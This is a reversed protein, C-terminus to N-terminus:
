IGAAAGLALWESDTLPKNVCFATNFRWGISADSFAYYSGVVIDSGGVAGTGFNMGTPLSQTTGQVVGNKTIKAIGTAADYSFGLFATEGNSITGRSFGTIGSVLQIFSIQGSDTRFQWVRNGAGVGANERNLIARNGSVDSMYAVVGFSVGLPMSPVNASAYSARATSGVVGYSGTVEAYTPTNGLSYSGSYTGDPGTGRNDVVTGSTEDLPFVMFAGHGVLLDILSGAPPAAGGFIYPNIIMSM